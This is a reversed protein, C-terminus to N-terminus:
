NPVLPSIPAFHRSSLAPRSATGRADSSHRRTSAMFGVHMQATVLSGNLMFANGGYPGFLLPTNM